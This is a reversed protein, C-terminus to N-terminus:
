VLLLIQLLFIYIRQFKLKVKAFVENGIESFELSIIKRQLQVANRKNENTKAHALHQSIRLKMVEIRCNADM